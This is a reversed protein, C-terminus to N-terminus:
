QTRVEHLAQDYALVRGGHQRRYAQAAEETRFAVLTPLCRDYTLVSVGQPERAVSGKQPACYEVDGGEVYYASRALIRAGSTLDTAWMQRVAGPHNLAYHIGCRPCCAEEWTGNAMELRYTMGAHLGRQCARCLDAAPRIEYRYTFLSVIAIAAAAAGAVLYEKANM